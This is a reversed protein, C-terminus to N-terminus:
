KSSKDAIDRYLRSAMTMKPSTGVMVTQNESLIGSEEVSDLLASIAAITEPGDRKGHALKESEDIIGKDATENLREFESRLDDWQKNYSTIFQYAERKMKDQWERSENEKTTQVDM